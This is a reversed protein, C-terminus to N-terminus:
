NFLNEIDQTTAYEIDNKFLADTYPIVEGIDSPIADLPTGDGYNFESAAQRNIFNIMLNSYDNGEFLCTLRKTEKNRYFTIGGWLSFVSRIYKVEFVDSNTAEVDFTGNFGIRLFIFGTGGHRSSYSFIFIEQLWPNNGGLQIEFVKFFKQGQVGGGYNFIYRSGKCFKIEESLLKLQEKTVVKNSM